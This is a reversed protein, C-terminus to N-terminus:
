EQFLTSPALHATEDRKDISSTGTGNSSHLREFKLLRGVAGPKRVFTAELPHGGILVGAEPGQHPQIQVGTEGMAIVAPHQLSEGSSSYVKCKPLKPNGHCKHVMNAWDAQALGVLQPPGVVFVDDHIWLVTVGPHQRQLDIADDLRSCSFLFSGLVAARTVIVTM